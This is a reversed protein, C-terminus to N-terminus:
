RESNALIYTQLTQCVDKLTERRFPHATNKKQMKQSQTKTDNIRNNPTCIHFIHTTMYINICINCVDAVSEVEAWDLEAWESGKLTAGSLVSCMGQPSQCVHLYKPSVTDKSILDM